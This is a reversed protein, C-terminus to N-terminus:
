VAGEFQHMLDYMREAGKETSGNGAGKVAKATMVFENNSLKADILDDRPGGPGRAHGSFGGGAFMSRGSGIFGGRNVRATPATPMEFEPYPLLLSGLEPDTPNASGGLGGAAQDLLRNGKELDMAIRPNLGAVRNATTGPAGGGGAGGGGAGGGGYQGIQSAFPNDASLGTSTGPTAQEPIPSGARLGSTLYDPAGTEGYEDGEYIGLGTKGLEGVAWKQIPNLAGYAGSLSTTFGPGVSAGMASLGELVGSGLTETLGLNTAAEIATVGSAAMEAAVAEAQAATLGTEMLTGTGGVGFSRAVGSGINQFFGGIGSQGAATPTWTSPQFVQAWTQGQFLSKIGTNGKLGMGQAFHAGIFAMAMNKAYGEQASTKTGIGAGIAAGIPGGVVFGITAGIAPGAKKVFKRVSKWTKSLWGFEPLNTDPNISMVGSGIVYQEPDVQERGFASFLDKQLQPNKELIEKPVVAEGSTAHVIVDDGNRGKDALYEALGVVGQGSSAAHM